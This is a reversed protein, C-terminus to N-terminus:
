RDDRCLGARRPRRCPRLLPHGSAPCAPPGTWGTPHRRPDIGARLSGPKNLFPGALNFLRPMVTRCRGHASEGHVALEEFTLEDEAKLVGYPNRTIDDEFYVAGSSPVFLGVPGTDKVHDAVISTIERNSSVYEELGLVAAQEKTAYAYHVMVHPGLTLAPLDSLPWIPLNTGSSLTISGYTRAFVHVRDHLEGSFASDLMHLTARGLWGRGGTVVVELESHLLRDAVEASFELPAGPTM